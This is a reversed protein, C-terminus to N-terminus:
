KRRARVMRGGECEGTPPVSLSPGDTSDDTSSSFEPWAHLSQLMWPHEICSADHFRSQATRLSAPHHNNRSCCTGSGTRGREEEEICWCPHLLTFSVLIVWLVSLCMCVYKVRGNGKTSGREGNPKLFAIPVVRGHLSQPKFTMPCVTHATPEGIHNGRSITPLRQWFTFTWRDLLFWQFFPFWHVLSIDFLSTNWSNM